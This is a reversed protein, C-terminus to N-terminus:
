GRKKKRGGFASQSVLDIGIIKRSRLMEKKFLHEGTEHCIKKQWSVGRRFNQM